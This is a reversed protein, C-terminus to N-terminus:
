DRFRFWLAMTFVSSWQTCNNKRCIQRTIVRISTLSGHATTYQWATRQMKRITLCHESTKSWQTLISEMMATKPDWSNTSGIHSPAWPPLWILVALSCKAPPLATIEVSHSPKYNLNESGSASFAVSFPSEKCFTASITIQPTGVTRSTRKIHKNMDRPLISNCPEADVFRNSGTLCYTSRRFTSTPMFNWPFM